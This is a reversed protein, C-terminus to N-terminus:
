LQISFETQPFDLIFTKTPSDFLVNFLYASGRETHELLAISCRAAFYEGDRRVGVLDITMGHTDNLVCRTSFDLFHPSQLTSDPAPIRFVESIDKGVLSKHGFAAALQECSSFIIGCQTTLVFGRRPNRFAARTSMFFTDSSLMPEIKSNRSGNKPKKRHASSKEKKEPAGLLLSVESAEFPDPPALQPRDAVSPRRSRLSPKQFTSARRLKAFRASSLLSHMTDPFTGDGLIGYRRALLFFRPNYTVSRFVVSQPVLAVVASAGTTLNAYFRAFWRCIFFQVVFLAACALCIIYFQICIHSNDAMFEECYLDLSQELGQVLDIGGVDWVKSFAQTNMADSNLVLDSGFPFLLALSTFSKLLSNLGPTYVESLEPQPYLASHEPYNSAAHCEERPTDPPMDLRLCTANYLLFQQDAYARTDSGTLNLDVNGLLLSRQIRNLAHVKKLFVFEWFASQGSWSACANEFPYEDAERACPGSTSVPDCHNPDPPPFYQMDLVSERVMSRVEEVLLVRQSAFYVENLRESLFVGYRSLIVLLFIIGVLLIFPCVALAVFASKKNWSIRTRVNDLTRLPDRTSPTGELESSASSSRFPSKALANWVPSPGSTQRVCQPVVPSSQVVVGTAGIRTPTPRTADNMDSFVKIHAEPISQLFRTASERYSWPGFSARYLEVCTMGVFGLGFLVGVTICIDTAQRHVRWINLCWAGQYQSTVQTINGMMCMGTPRIETEANDGGFVVDQMTTTFGINELLNLQSINVPNGAVVDAPELAAFQLGTELAFGVADQSAAQVYETCGVPKTDGDFLSITAEPEDFFTGLLLPTGDAVDESLDDLVSLLSVLDDNYTQFWVSDEGPEHTVNDWVGFAALQMSRAAQFMQQTAITQNAYARIMTAVHPAQGCFYSFFSILLLLAVFLPLASRLSQKCFHRQASVSVEPPLSQLTYSALGRKSFPTEELPNEPGLAKADDGERISNQPFSPTEVSRIMRAARFLRDSKESNATFLYVSKSYFEILEKNDSQKRYAKDLKDHFEAISNHIQLSTAVLKEWDPASQTKASSFQQVNTLFRLVSSRILSEEEKFRELQSLGQFM